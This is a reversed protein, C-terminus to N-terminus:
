ISQQTWITVAFHRFDTEKTGQKKLEANQRLGPLQSIIFFFHNCFPLFLHPSWLGPLLLTLLFISPLSFSEMGVLIRSFGLVGWGWNQLNHPRSMKLNKEVSKERLSMKEWFLILYFTFIAFLFYNIFM